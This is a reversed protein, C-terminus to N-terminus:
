ECKSDIVDKALKEIRTSVEKDNSLIRLKDFNNNQM